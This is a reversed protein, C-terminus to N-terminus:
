KLVMTKNRKSKICFFLYAPFVVHLVGKYISDFQEHVSLLGETIMREAVLWGPVWLATTVTQTSRVRGPSSARSKARANRCHGVQARGARDISGFNYM